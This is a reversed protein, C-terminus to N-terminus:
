RQPCPIRMFTKYRLLERHLEMFHKEKRKVKWSFEGHRLEMTFVAPQSELIRVTVPVARLYVTATAEKFGVTRYVASFPIRCDDLNGGDLDNEEGEGMDLERMDLCEVLEAMKVKLRGDTRDDGHSVEAKVLNLQSTGTTQAEDALM